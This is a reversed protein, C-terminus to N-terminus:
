DVSLIEIYCKEGTLFVYMPDAAAAQTDSTVTYTYKNGEADVVVGDIAIDSGSRSITLTVDADMMISLFNDGDWSGEAFAPTDNPFGWGFADSRVVGYEVYGKYNDASPATDATTATNTFVVLYNDWSNLGSGYNNFHLTVLGGDKLEYADSFSTWFGNDCTTAGVTAIANKDITTVVQAQPEEEVAEGSASEVTSDGLLYLSAVQGPTLASDYVYLDDVFGKYVTDWYNIGFLAEFQSDGPQMINPALTADWTYGNEFYTSNTYNEQSDYVLVGDLYFQAGATTSGTPGNQVEGTSVITVMVWEKKGHIDLDFAYMWPWCDTGDAADSAENRSWVVPFIKASNDGWETQTVNMWTVNNGADAAKGMNYGMQLTPGYNSLRDANMWFSVTYTDTNTAELGLDLGYTGDLFLANGVPGQAYVFEAETAALGYTAGDNDGIDEIQVIASYGEDDGDFTLHAAAQAPLEEPDALGAAVSTEEATEGTTETEAITEEVTQTVANDTSSGCGALMVSAMSLSLLAALLKKKM